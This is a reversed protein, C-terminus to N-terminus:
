VYIVRKTLKVKDVLVTPAGDSDKDKVPNEVECEYISGNNDCDYKLISAAYNLNTTVFLQPNALDRSAVWKNKINQKNM